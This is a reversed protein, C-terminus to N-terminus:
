VTIKQTVIGDEPLLMTKWFAPNNCVHCCIDQQHLLCIGGFYQHGSVNICITVAWIM